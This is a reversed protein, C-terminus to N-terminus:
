KSDLCAHVKMDTVQLERNRTNRNELIQGVVGQSKNKGSKKM